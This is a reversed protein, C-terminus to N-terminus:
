NSADRPVCSNNRWACDTYCVWPGHCYYPHCARCSRVKRAGCQVGYGTGNDRYDVYAEALHLTLLLSAQLLSSREM